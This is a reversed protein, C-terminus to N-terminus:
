DGNTAEKELMSIIVRNVSPVGRPIVKIIEMVRNDVVVYSTALLMSDVTDTYKIQVTCDGEMLTGGSVWGLEEAGKWTIHGSVVAGSYTPIYYNGSCVTCFSNTSLGTIPDLTCGSATCATQGVQQMFTVDRGIAGRIQDIIETTNSPFTIAM